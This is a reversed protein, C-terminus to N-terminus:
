YFAGDCIACSTVGKAQYDAAGPCTLPKPTAGTAVIVAQAYYTNKKTVLKFPRQSFDVSEVTERVLQAGFHAAHERLTKMLQPGMISTNGPWNEVETTGMLQGGPQSGEFILPQLQARSGYIGATFGAPGSGIIILSHAKM